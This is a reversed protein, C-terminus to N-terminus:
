LSLLIYVQLHNMITEISATQDARIEYSRIPFNQRFVFGEQAIRWPLHNISTQQAHYTSNNDHSAPNDDAKLENMAHKKIGNVETPSQLNAKVQVGISNISKRKIGRTDVSGQENGLTRSTKAWSHPNPFSVIFMSGATAIATAVM